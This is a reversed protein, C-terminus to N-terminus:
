NPIVSNLFAGWTPDQCWGGSKRQESKARRDYDHALLLSNIDKLCSQTERALPARNWMSFWPDEYGNFCM